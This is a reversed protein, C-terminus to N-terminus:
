LYITLGYFVYEIHNQTKLYQTTLNFSQAISNLTDKPSVKYVNNQRINLLLIQGSYVEQKLKNDYIVCGIPLNFKQAISALTEGQQVRYFFKKM